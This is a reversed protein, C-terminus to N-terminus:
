KQFLIVRSRDSHLLQLEFKDAIWQMTISSYFVVHTLDNKYRWTSFDRVNDHLLTMIGLYGPKKALNVLTQWSAKPDCFHEVVETCTIFDYQQNINEPYNAYLPDYIKVQYGSTELMKYLTPGPGSGFDLGKMGPTLYALLPKALQNLFNRYGIDDPNNQHFDYQKKEEDQHLQFCPPIFILDCNFCQYFDRCNNSFIKNKTIEGCLLCRM